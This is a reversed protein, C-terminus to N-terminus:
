GPFMKSQRTIAVAVSKVLVDGFMRMSLSLMASKASGVRM